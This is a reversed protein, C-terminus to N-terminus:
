GLSRRDSNPSEEVPVAISFLRDPNDSIILFQASRNRQQEVALLRAGIMLIEEEAADLKHQLAMREKWRGLVPRLLLNAAWRPALLPTASFIMAVWLIM